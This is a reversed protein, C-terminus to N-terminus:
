TKRYHTRHCCSVVAAAESCHLTTHPSVSSSRPIQQLLPHWSWVAHFTFPMLTALTQLYPPCQTQSISTGWHSEPASGKSALYVYVIQLPCICKRSTNMSSIRHVKLSMRVKCLRSGGGRSKWFLEEFKTTFPALAFYTICLQRTRSQTVSFASCSRAFAWTSYSLITFSFSIIISVSDSFTFVIHAWNSVSNWTLTNCKSTENQLTTCPPMYFWAMPWQSPMLRCSSAYFHVRWVQAGCGTGLGSLVADWPPM